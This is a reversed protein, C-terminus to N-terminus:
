FAYAVRRDSRLERWCSEYEDPFIRHKGRAALAGALKPMESLRLGVGILPLLASMILIFAGGVPVYTTEFWANTVYATGNGAGSDRRVYIQLTDYSGLTTLTGNIYFGPSFTDVSPAAFNDVLSGGASMSGYTLYWNNDNKNAYGKVIVSTLSAYPVRADLVKSEYATVGTTTIWSGAGTGPPEGGKSWSAYGNTWSTHTGDAIGALYQIAM